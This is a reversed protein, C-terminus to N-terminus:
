RADDRVGEKIFPMEEALEFYYLSIEELRGQEDSYRVWYMGNGQTSTIQVKRGDLMLYAVDGQEFSIGSEEEVVTASITAQHHRQAASRMAQVAPLLLAVLALIIIIVIVIEAITFGKKRKMKKGKKCKGTCRGKKDCKKCKNKTTM